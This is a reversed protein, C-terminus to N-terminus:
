PLHVTPNHSIYDNFHELRFLVDYTILVDCFVDNSIRFLDYCHSSTLSFTVYLGFKVNVLILFQNTQGYVTFTHM